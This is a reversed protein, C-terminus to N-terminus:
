LRLPPSSHRAYAPVLANVLPFPPARLSIIRRRPRREPFPPAPIRAFVLLVVAACVVLGPAPSQELGSHLVLLALLVALLLVLTPGLWRHRLGRELAARLAIM